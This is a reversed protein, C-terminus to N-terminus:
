AEAIEGRTFGSHGLKGGKEKLLDQLNKGSLVDTQNKESGKSKASGTMSERKNGYGFSSQSKTM